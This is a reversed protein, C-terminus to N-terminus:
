SISESTLKLDTYNSSQSVVWCFVRGAPLSLGGLACFALPLSFLSPFAEVIWFAESSCGLQWYNQSLFYPPAQDELLLLLLLFKRHIRIRLAPPVSFNIATLITETNLHEAHPLCGLLSCFQWQTKPIGRAVAESGMIVVRPKLDHNVELRMSYDALNTREVHSSYCGRGSATPLPQKPTCCTSPMPWGVEGDHDKHM